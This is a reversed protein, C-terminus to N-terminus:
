LAREGVLEPQDQVGCGAPEHEGQAVSDGTGRGEGTCLECGQPQAEELDASADDLLGGPDADM